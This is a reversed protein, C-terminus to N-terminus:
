TPQVPGCQYADSCITTSGSTTCTCGQTVKCGAPIPSCPEATQARLLSAGSAITIASFVGLIVKKM